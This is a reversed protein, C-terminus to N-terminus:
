SVTVAEVLVSEFLVTVGHAKLPLRADTTADGRALDAAIEELEFGKGVLHDIFRAKTEPELADYDGLYCLTIGEPLEVLAPWPRLLKVELKGFIELWAKARPNDEAIRAICFPYALKM